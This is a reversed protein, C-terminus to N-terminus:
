PEDPEGATVPAAENRFERHRIKGGAFAIYGGLALVVLAGALTISTLSPALKPWKRPLLLALAALVALLYYSWAFQDARHMHADLWARGQKDSLSLVRDYGAAGFHVVPWVILACLLILILPAIHASRSRQALAIILGISAIALGYVPLPNILVHVYEPQSFDQSLTALM